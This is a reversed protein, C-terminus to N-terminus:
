ETLKRSFQLHYLLITIIKPILMRWDGQFTYEPRQLKCFITFKLDTNILVVRPDILSFILFQVRILRSLIKSHNFHVMWVYHRPVNQHSYSEHSSKLPHDRSHVKQFTYIFSQRKPKFDFQSTHKVSIKVRYDPM